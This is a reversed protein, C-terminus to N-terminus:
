PAIDGIAIASRSEAGTSLSILVAQGALWTNVNAPSLGYVSIYQQWFNGGTQDTLPDLSAILKLPTNSNGQPVQLPPSAFLKLAFGAPIPNINIQFVLSQDAFDIGIASISFPPFITPSPMETIQEQDTQVLNLNSSAQLNSGSLYYTNGLSNTRPYNVAENTFTDKDLPDLERWNQQVSSFQNQKQTQSVSKKQVPVNRKRIVYTTGSKQFTSGGRSGAIRDTGFTLLYRAM